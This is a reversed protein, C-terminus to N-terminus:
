SKLRGDPVFDSRDLQFRINNFNKPHTAEKAAQHSAGKPTDIKTGKPVGQADKTNGRKAAEQLGELQDFPDRNQNRGFQKSPKTGAPRGPPRIAREGEEAYTEMAPKVNKNVTEMAPKAWTRWQSWNVNTYWPRAFLVIGQLGDPDVSNIPYYRPASKATCARKQAASLASM